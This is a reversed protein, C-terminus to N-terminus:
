FNHIFVIVYWFYFLYRSLHTGTVVAHPTRLNRISSRGRIHLTAEFINFLCVRVASLFHDELKPPQALHQCSWVTFLYRTVFHWCLIPISPRRTHIRHHVKPKWSIRPIKQSASFRDAEWSPSRELSHTPLYFLCEFDCATACLCLSHAPRRQFLFKSATTQRHLVAPIM